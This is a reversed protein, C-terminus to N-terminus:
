PVSRDIALRQPVYGIKIKERWRVTGSFPALGLLARLLMTKGAGNPGIIVLAEGVTVSFSINSLIDEGNIRLSLHEVRLIPEQKKQEDTM